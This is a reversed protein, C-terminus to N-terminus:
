SKPTREIKVVRNNSSDSIYLQGAPSLWVGHPQALQAKDPPGGLGASGKVGNGAVRVLLGTAPAYKRIVHNETDAIIVNDDADCCLHKPGRFAARLAPGGDGSFGAEGTGAVTRITGASDVVRLANGSRELIYILGKSDVAVARPDVLPAEAAPSGDVPVGKRGNGAVTTVTGDVLNVRRIRRNDLDVAFMLQKKSDLALCYIGGWDAKIAPGGDGSFAKKGTGAVALMNGSSPDIKRIRQNWTDAIFVSDDAGVLLHHPGNLRAEQAPGGDGGDGKEGTGGLLKVQGDPTLVKIQNGPMEVIYLRGRSDADVGFPGNLRVEAAPGEAATGGGAVLVLRDGEEANASSAHTGGTGILGLAFLVIGGCSFRRGLVLHVPM